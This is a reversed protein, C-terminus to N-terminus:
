GSNDPGVRHSASSGGAGTIIGGRFLSTPHDAKGRRTRYRPVSTACPERRRSAIDNLGAAAKM